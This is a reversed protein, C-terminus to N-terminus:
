VQYGSHICAAVPNEVENMAIRFSQLGVERGGADLRGFMGNVQATPYYRDAASGRFLQTLTFREPLNEVFM